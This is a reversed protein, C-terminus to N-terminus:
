VGYAYVKQVHWYRGPCQSSIPRAYEVAPLFNVDPLLLFGVFWFEFRKSEINRKCDCIGSPGRGRANDSLQALVGQRNKTGCPVHKEFLSVISM